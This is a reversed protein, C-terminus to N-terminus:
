RSPLTTITQIYCEITKSLVDSCYTYELNTSINFQNKNTIISIDIMNNDETYCQADLWHDVAEHKAGRLVTVINSRKVYVKKCGSIELINIIEKKTLIKKMKIQKANFLIRETIPKIFESKDTHKVFSLAVWIVFIAIIILSFIKLADKM